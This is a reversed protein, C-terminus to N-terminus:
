PKEVEYDEWSTAESAGSFDATTKYTDVTITYSGTGSVYTTGDSGVITVSNGNADTITGECYLATLVSDGTVVW